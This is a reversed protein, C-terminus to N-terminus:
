THSIDIIKTEKNFREWYFIIEDSDYLSTHMMLEYFRPLSDLSFHCFPEILVKSDM